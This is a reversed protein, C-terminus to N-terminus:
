ASASQASYEFQGKVLVPDKHNVPKKKKRDIAWFLHSDNRGSCATLYKHYCRPSM